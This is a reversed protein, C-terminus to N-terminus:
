PKPEGPQPQPRRLAPLPPCCSAALLVAPLALLDTPDMVLAVPRLSGLTGATLLTVLSRFPWQLSGAAHCYAWAAPSWLKILAFTLATLACCVSLLRAPQTHPWRPLRRAAVLVLQVLSQLLLPFFVLGAVDSLKGTLWAPGVGKWFHDNVVLLAVAALAVPHLLPEGIVVEGSPPHSVARRAGTAPQTPM